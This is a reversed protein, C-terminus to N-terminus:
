SPRPPGKLCWFSIHFYFNLNSKEKQGADPRSPKIKLYRQPLYWLFCKVIRGDKAKNLSRKEVFWPKTPPCYNLIVIHFYNGDPMFQLLKKRCISFYISRSTTISNKFHFKKNNVIVRKVLEWHFILQKLIKVTIFTLLKLLSGTVYFFKLVSKWIKWRFFTLPAM